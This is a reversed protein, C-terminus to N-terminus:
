SCGRDKVTLIMQVVTKTGLGLKAAIEDPRLGRANYLLALDQQSPSWAPARKTAPRPPRSATRVSTTRRARDSSASRDSQTWGGAKEYQDAAKNVGVAVIKPDRAHLRQCARRTCYEYKEAREPHLESGCTICKAMVDVFVRRARTTNRAQGSV